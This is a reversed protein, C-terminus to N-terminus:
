DPQKVEVASASGGRMCSRVRYPGRRRDSGISNTHIISNLYIGNISQLKDIVRGSAEKSSVNLPIYAFANKVIASRDIM